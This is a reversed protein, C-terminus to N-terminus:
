LFKVCAYYEIVHQYENQWPKRSHIFKSGGFISVGGVPRNLTPKPLKPPETEKHEDASSM